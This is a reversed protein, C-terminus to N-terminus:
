RSVELRQRCWVAVPKGARLAPYYLMGFAWERAAGVLEPDSVGGAWAAQSVGGAEDILLDLEVWHDGRGLKAAVSGPLRLRGPTRLIPPELRPDTAAVVPSPPIVTDPEADPLDPTVGLPSSVGVRELRTRARAEPRVPLLVGRASDALWEVPV